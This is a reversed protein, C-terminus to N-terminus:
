PIQDRKMKEDLVETVVTGTSEAAKINGNITNELDAKKASRVAEGRSGRMSRELERNVKDLDKIHKTNTVGKMTGAVGDGIKNSAVGILTEKAIKKGDTEIEIGGIGEEIVDTIDADITSQAMESVVMTGGKLFLRKAVSTGGTIGGEVTAFFVDAGDINTAAELWGDGKTLNAIYQSGAEVIGGGIAGCIWPPCEAAKGDPDILKAPNSLVYNYDSWRPYDAAM